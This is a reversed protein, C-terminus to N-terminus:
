ALARIFLFLVMDVSTGTQACGTQPQTQSPELSCFEIKDNKTLKFEFYGLQGVPHMASDVQESHGLGLVHGLEHVLINQYDLETWSFDGQNIEIKVSARSRTTMALAGSDFRWDQKERLIVQNSSHPDFVLKTRGCSVDNWVSM